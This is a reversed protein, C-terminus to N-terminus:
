LLVAGWKKHSGPPQWRVEETQLVGYFFLIRFQDASHFVIDPRNEVTVLIKGALKAHVM